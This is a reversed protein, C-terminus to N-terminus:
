APANCWSASRPGAARRSPGAAAAATAGRPRAPASGRAPDPTVPTRPSDPEIRDWGPPDSLLAWVMTVPSATVPAGPDIRGQAAYDAHLTDLDPGAYLLKTM